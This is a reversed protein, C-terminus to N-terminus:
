HDWIMPDIEAQPVLREIQRTGKATVKYMREDAATPQAQEVYGASQQYILAREVLASCERNTRGFVYDVIEAGSQPIGMVDNLFRLVLKNIMRENM